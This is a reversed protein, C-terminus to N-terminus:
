MAAILDHKVTRGSTSLSDITAYSSKM